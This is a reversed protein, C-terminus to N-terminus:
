IHQDEFIQPPHFFGGAPITEKTVYAFGSTTNRSPDHRPDARYASPGAGYEVAMGAAPELEVLQDWVLRTMFATARVTPPLDKTENLAWRIYNAPSVRRGHADTHTAMMFVGTFQDRNPDAGNVDRDVQAKLEAGKMNRTAGSMQAIAKLIAVEDTANSPWSGKSQGAVGFLRPRGYWEWRPPLEQDERLAEEDRVRSLTM